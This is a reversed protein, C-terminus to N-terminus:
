QLWSVSVSTSLVCFTEDGSPGRMISKYLWAGKRGVGRYGRTVVLRNAMATTKGNLATHTSDYFM